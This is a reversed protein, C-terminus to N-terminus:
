RSPASTSTWMLGSCRVASEPGHGIALGVTFLAELRHGLAAKLFNIAQQPTFPSIKRKEVRPPTTLAAVNRPVLDSRVAINLAIRFVVRLYRVLAPSNGAKLKENLFQQVRQVTLKSLLVDKLGLVSDLDRKKWEDPPVTKALHNRVMQEYSDYSCITRM